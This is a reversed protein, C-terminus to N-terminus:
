DEDLEPIHEPWLKHGLDLINDMLIRGTLPEQSHGDVLTGLTCLIALTTQRNNRMEKLDEEPVNM